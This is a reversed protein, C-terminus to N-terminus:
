ADVKTGEIPMMCYKSDPDVAQKEFEKIDKERSLLILSAADGNQHPNSEAMAAARVTAGIMHARLKEDLMLTPMMGLLAEVVRRFVFFDVLHRQEIKPLKEVIADHEEFFVRFKEIQAAIMDAGQEAEKSKGTM